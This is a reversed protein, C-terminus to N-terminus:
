SPKGEAVPRLHEVDGAQVVSVEGNERKVRLAGNEGIGDTIGMFSEGDSVMVRVTKGAFWTSRSKWEGIISQPQATFSAYYKEIQSTLADAVDDRSPSFVSENGISTANKALEGKLNIGIGLIVALGQPTEVADALIGCIKKDGVLIDNPWKIDAAIEFSKLLEYVAVGAMLPILTVYRQETKPRLIISFYLGSDKESVWSRGQRGRGATQEDAIICLGEEAGQRAQNAAETNTSEITDYCLIRFNM